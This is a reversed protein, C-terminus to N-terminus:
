GSPPAKIVGEVAGRHPDLAIWESPPLGGGDDGSDLDTKKTNM